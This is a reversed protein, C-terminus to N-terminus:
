IVISAKYIRMDAKKRGEIITDKDLTLLQLKFNNEKALKSLLSYHGILNSFGILLCGGKIIHKKSNKFFRSISNYNYDFVAKELNNLKRKNTLGFPMDWFIYDYKQELPIKSFVNSYFVKTNKLKHAKFNAITNKVATKNIDVATIKLTKNKIGLYGSIIGCGCGIELVQSNNKIIQLLRKSFCLGFPFYKPSFVNPYVIFKYKNLYFYHKKELKNLELLKYTNTIYKQKPKLLLM